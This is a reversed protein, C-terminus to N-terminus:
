KRHEAKKEISRLKSCRICRSFNPHLTSSCIHVSKQSCGGGAGLQHFGIFNPYLTLFETVVCYKRVDFEEESNLREVINGTIM